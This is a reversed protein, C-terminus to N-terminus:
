VHLEIIDKDALVHERPVLQGEYLNAGWIRARKLHAAIDRHIAAAMEVVTTGQPFTFPRDLDPKKGPEKSFVRIIHLTKFCQRALEGLGQFREAGTALLPELDPRLDRLAAFNGAAGPLDM